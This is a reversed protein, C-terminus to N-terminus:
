TKSKLSLIDIPKSAKKGHGCENMAEVEARCDYKQNLQDCMKQSEQFAEIENEGYSYVTITSVYRNKKIAM